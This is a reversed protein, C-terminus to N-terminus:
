RGKYRSALRLIDSIYDDVLQTTLTDRVFARGAEAIRAAREPDRELGEVIECLDSFDERVQVFHVGPVLLPEFWEYFSNVANLVVSGLALKMWLSDAFGNNGVHIIYRYNAFSDFPLRAKMQNPKAVSKRSTFGADIKGGCYGPQIAANVLLIRPHRAWAHRELGFTYGNTDAPPSSPGRKAADEDDCQARHNNPFYYKGLPGCGVSGGYAGRWIAESKRDQWRRGTALFKQRNEDFSSGFRSRTHTPFPIDHFSDSSQSAFMPPVGIRTENDRKPYIPWDASDFILSFDNTISSCALESDLARQIMFRWPDKGQALCGRLGYVRKNVKITTLRQFASALPTPGSTQFVAFRRSLIDFLAARHVSGARFAGEMESGNTPVQETSNSPEEVSHNVLKPRPLKQQSSFSEVSPQLRQAETVSPSQASPAVSPDSRQAEEMSPSQASPVVSALEAVEALTAAMPIDVASAPVATRAFCSPIATPRCWTGAYFGVILGVTLVAALLAASTGRGPTGRAM